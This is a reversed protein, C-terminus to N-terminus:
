KIEISHSITFPLVNERFANLINGPPYYNAVVYWINGIRSAGFGVLYSNRWILQTFHGTYISFGPYNYNYNKIEKYWMDTASWGDIKYNSVLWAINEGIELGKWKNGSHQFTNTIALKNAYNQAINCLEMNLSLPPVRHRARYLNHRVLAQTLFTTDYCSIYSKYKLLIILFYRLFM